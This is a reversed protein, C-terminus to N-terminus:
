QCSGLGKRLKKLARAVHQKAAGTTIKLHAAIQTYTWGEEFILRVITKQQPSLLELSAEYRVRLEDDELRHDPQRLPASVPTPDLRANGRARTAHGRATNMMRGRVSGYLYTRLRRQVEAPDAHDDLLEGRQTFLVLYSDHVADEADALERSGLTLALQLLAAHHAEFVQQLRIRRRQEQATRDPAAADDAPTPNDPPVTM